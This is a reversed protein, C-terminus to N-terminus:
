RLWSRSGTSSTCVESCKERTVKLYPEWMGSRVFVIKSAIEERTVPFFEQFSETTREKGVWLLRTVGLDIQYVLTLYKRGRDYQIEDVGVADPAPQHCRSCVAASGKRPRVSVEITTRKFRRPLTTAGEAAIEPPLFSLM